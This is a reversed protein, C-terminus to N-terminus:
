ERDFTWTQWVEEGPAPTGDFMQLELKEFDGSFVGTQGPQIGWTTLNNGNVLYTFPIFFAPLSAPSPYFKGTGRGNSNMTSEFILKTNPSTNTYTGVFLSDATIWNNSLTATASDSFVHTVKYLSSHTTYGKAKLEATFEGIGEVIYMFRGLEEDFTPTKIVGNIKLEYYEPNKTYEAYYEDSVLHPPLGVIGIWHVAGEPINTIGTNNFQIEPTDLTLEVTKNGGCATLMIGSCLLLAPLIILTLLKKM